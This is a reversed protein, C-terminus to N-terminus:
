RRKHITNVVFLSKQYITTVELGSLIAPPVEVLDKLNREPLIVRKIGYRHAALVQLLLDVDCIQGSM